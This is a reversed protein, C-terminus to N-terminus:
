LQSFEEQVEIFRKREEKPNKATLFAKLLTLSFKYYLFSSFFFILLISLFEQSQQFLLVYIGLALIISIPFFVIISILIFFPFLFLSKIRLNQYYEEQNVEYM